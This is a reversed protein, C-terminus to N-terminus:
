RLERTAWITSFRGAIYSVWTRDRPQYSGSWKPIAGWELIRAQLMGYVSYGPLSCNTPDCLAPCLQAVLLLLLVQKRHKTKLKGSYKVSHANPNSLTFSWVRAKLCFIKLILSHKRCFCRPFASLNKPPSHRRIHTWGRHQWLQNDTGEAAKGPARGWKCCSCFIPQHGGCTNRRDPFYFSEWFRRNIVWQGDIPTVHGQWRPLLLSLRHSKMGRGLLLLCNDDANTVSLKFTCDSNYLLPWHVSIGLLNVKFDLIGMCDEMHDNILTLWGGGSAELGLIQWNLETWDSLRTQSKAVGHVAAPWAERDMVLERLKSLSMGMSDTIGDLWRMRQQGRRRRGEIKGLMLTKELSDARQMLHGFYQLKLKLM